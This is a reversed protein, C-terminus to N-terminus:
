KKKCDQVYFYPTHLLSVFIETFLGFHKPDAFFSKEVGAFISMTKGIPRPVMMKNRFDWIVLGNLDIVFLKRSGIELELVTSL